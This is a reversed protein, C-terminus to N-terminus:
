KHAHVRAFRAEDTAHCKRCSALDPLVLGAAVAKARDRMVSATWYDGGNGHCGECDLGKQAHPSASWSEFQVRHCMKCKQPGVKAHAAAAPAPAPAPAPAAQVPAPAPSPAPAPAPKATDSPKATEAPRPAPRPPPTVTPAAPLEAPRPAPAPQAQPAPQEAPAPAPPTVEPAPAPPVASPAPASPYAPAPAEKKDSCALVTLVGMVAVAIRLDIRAM